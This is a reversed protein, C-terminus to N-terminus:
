RRTRLSNSHPEAMPLHAGTHAALRPNAMGKPDAAASSALRSAPIPQAPATLLASLLSDVEGRSEARAAMIFTTGAALAVVVVGLLWIRCTRIM